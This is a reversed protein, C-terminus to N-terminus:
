RSSKLQAIVSPDHHKRAIDEASENLKNTATWLANHRLLVKIKPIDQDARFQKTDLLTMLATHGKKSANRRNINSVASITQEFQEIPIDQGLASFMRRTNPSLPAAASSAASAVPPIKAVSLAVPVPAPAVAVPKKIEAATVKQIAIAQKMEKEIHPEWLKLIFQQAESAKPDQDKAIAGILAECVDALMKDTITHDKETADFIIFDGLKLEKAVLPLITKNAIMKIYIDNLQATSMDEPAHEEIYTRIVSNLIGDGVFEYRQYEAEKRVSNHTRTFATILHRSNLFRYGLKDKMTDYLKKYVSLPNTSDKLEAKAKDNGNDDAKQMWIFAQILDKPLDLRGSKYFTALEYQADAYGNQAAKKMGIVVLKTNVQDCKDDKCANALNYYAVSLGQTGAKEFLFAADLYKKDYYYIIGLYNNSNKDDGGEKLYRIAKDKLQAKQWADKENTYKNYYLHGLEIVGKGKNAVSREHYKIAEDTNKIEAFFEHLLGCFYNVNSDNSDQENLKKFVRWAESYSRPVIDGRYYLEGLEQGAPTHKAEFAQEYCRIAKLIDQSSLLDSIHIKALLYNLKVKVPHSSYYQYPGKGEAIQLLRKYTETGVTLYKKADDYKAAAKLLFSLATIFSDDNSSSETILLMGLEFQADINDKEAAKTLWEKARYTDKQELYYKGVIYQAASDGGSAKSVNSDYDAKTLM